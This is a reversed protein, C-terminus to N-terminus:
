KNYFFWYWLPKGVLPVLKLSEYRAKKGEIARSVDRYVYDAPTTIPLIKQAVATPGSFRDIDYKSFGYLQLISNVLIEEADNDLGM